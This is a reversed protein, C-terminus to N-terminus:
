NKHQSSFNSLSQLFDRVTQYSAWKLPQRRFVPLNTGRHTHCRLHLWFLIDDWISHLVVKELLNKNCIFFLYLLLLANFFLCYQLIYVHLLYELHISEYCILEFSCLQQVFQTLNYKGIVLFKQWLNIVFPHSLPSKSFINIFCSTMLMIWSRMVSWDITTVVYMKCKYLLVRLDFCLCVFHWDCQASIWVDNLSNKDLWNWMSMAEPDVQQILTINDGKLMIRGLNKRIQTKRNVEEAEDLVLNMYEDFGIIHGEVRSNINEYLWVQVRSRNQLYRFILNIPQVMIKQVKQGGKYSM